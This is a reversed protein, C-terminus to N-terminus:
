ERSSLITFSKMRRSLMSQMQGGPCGTQVQPCRAVSRKTVRRGTRGPSSSTLALGRALLARIRTASLSPIPHPYQILGKPHLSLHLWDEEGRPAM